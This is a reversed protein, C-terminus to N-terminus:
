SFFSEKPYSPMQTWLTLAIKMAPPESLRILCGSLQCLLLYTMPFPYTIPMRQKAGLFPGAGRLLKRKQYPHNQYLHNSRVVNSNMPLNYMLSGQIRSQYHLLTHCLYHLLNKFINKCEISNDLSFRNYSSVLVQSVYRIDKGTSEILIKALRTSVLSFPEFFYNFPLCSREHPPWPKLAM